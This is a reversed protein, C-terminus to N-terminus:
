AVGEGDGKAMKWVMKLGVERWQVVIDKCTLTEATLGERWGRGGGWGDHAATSL